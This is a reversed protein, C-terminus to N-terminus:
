DSVPRVTYGHSRLSYLVYYGRSCTHLGYAINTCGDVLTGSWYYGFSRWEYLETGNYRYGEAPLFISNGNPGTVKYGTAYKYTTWTWTCRDVLEQMEAKTPLRWNGGWQARAVDYQTGCINAGINTYGSDYYQYTEESYESKTTIEGWAYHEGFDEPSSAGVNWGAWCVSLGLDVKQATCIDSEDYDLLSFENGVNRFVVIILSAIVVLGLVLIIITKKNM